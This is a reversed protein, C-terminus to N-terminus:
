DQLNVGTVSKLFEWAEQENGAALLAKMHKKQDLSAVQHFRFFEMAGTNGKYTMEDIESFRM